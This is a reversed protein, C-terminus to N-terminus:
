RKAAEQLHLTVLDLIARSQFRSAMQVLTDAFGRYEDNLSALHEARERIHRMSGIKALQYLVELEQAPPAVLPRSASAASEPVM